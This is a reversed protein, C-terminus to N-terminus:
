DRTADVDNDGEPITFIRTIVYWHLYLAAVLGALGGVFLIAISV